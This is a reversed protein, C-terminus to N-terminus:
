FSATITALLHTFIYHCKDPHWTGTWKCCKHLTLIYVYWIFLIQKTAKYLLVIYVTNFYSKLEDFSFIDLCLCHVNNGLFIFLYVLLCVFLYINLQIKSYNYTM